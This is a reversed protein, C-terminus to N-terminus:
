HNNSLNLKVYVREICDIVLDSSQRTFSDLLELIRASHSNIWAEWDNGVFSAAMSPFFLYDERDVQGDDDYHLVRVRAIMRGKLTYSPSLTTFLDGLLSATMQFFLLMDSCPEKALLDYDCVHGGFAHEALILRANDNEVLTPINAPIRSTHVSEHSLRSAMSHHPRQCISCPFIRNSSLQRNGNLGRRNAIPSPENPIEECGDANSVWSSNSFPSSAICANSLRNLCVLRHRKLNDVRTTQYSNCIDCKM